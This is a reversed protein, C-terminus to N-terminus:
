AALVIIYVIIYYICHIYIYVCVLLFHVDRPRAVSQIQAARRVNLNSESGMLSDRLGDRHNMLTLNCKWGEVVGSGGSWSNTDEGSALGVGHGWQWDSRINRAVTVKHHTHTRTKGYGFVCIRICVCARRTRRRSL